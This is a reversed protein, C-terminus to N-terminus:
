HINIVLEVSTLFVHVRLNHFKLMGCQLSSLHFLLLIEVLIVTNSFQTIEETFLKCAPNPLLSNDFPRLKTEVNPYM